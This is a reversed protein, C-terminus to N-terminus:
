NIRTKNDSTGTKIFAIILIKWLCVRVKVLV